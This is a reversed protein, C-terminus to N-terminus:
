NVLERLSWIPRIANLINSVIVPINPSGRCRCSSQHRRHEYLWHPTRLRKVGEPYVVSPGRPSYLRGWVFKFVQQTGGCPRLLM